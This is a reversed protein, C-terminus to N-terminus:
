ALLADLAATVEATDFLAGWRDVIMGDADILYLWPETLDNNRYLWDAAGKNIVQNSFDLWVEVHILNVRDGYIVHLSEMVEVEPGCFQSMCFAPTAFLVLTPLGSSVADAISIAHLEPDPVDGGSAARSDIGAAPVQPDGMVLTDNALAAQGPAPLVPEENVIITGSATQAGDPLDATVEVIWVGARDFVVDRAEYVGRAESPPTARPPGDESPMGPTPLYGATVVPGPEPAIPADAPGTYSFAFRVTGHNVIEGEGIGLGVLVRQPAAVYHDVSAVFAQMAGPPPASPLPEAGEGGGGCAALALTLATLFASRPRRM